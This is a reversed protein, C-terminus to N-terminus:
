VLLLKAKRLEILDYFVETKQKACASPAYERGGGGRCSYQCHHGGGM